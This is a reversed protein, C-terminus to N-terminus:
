RSAHIHRLQVTNVEVSTRYGATDIGPRCFNSTLASQTRPVLEGATVSMESSKM